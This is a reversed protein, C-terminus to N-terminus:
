NEPDHLYRYISKQRSVQRLVFQSQNCTKLPLSLLQLTHAVQTEKFTSYKNFMKNKYVLFGSSDNVAQIIYVFVDERVQKQLRFQQLFM